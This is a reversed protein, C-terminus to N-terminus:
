QQAKPCRPEHNVVFQKFTTGIIEVTAQCDRCGTELETEFQRRAENMDTLESTSDM